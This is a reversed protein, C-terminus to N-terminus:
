ALGSAMWRDTDRPVDLWGLAMRQRGPSEASWTREVLQLGVAGPLDQPDKDGYPM